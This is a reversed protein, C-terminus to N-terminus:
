PRRAGRPDRSARAQRLGAGMAWVGWCVLTAAATYGAASEPVFWSAVAPWEPGRGPSVEEWRVLAGFLLAVSGSFFMWLGCQVLRRPNAALRRTIADLM